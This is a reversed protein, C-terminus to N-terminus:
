VEAYLAFHDSTSRVYGYNAWSTLNTALGLNYVVGNPTPPWAFANTFSNGMPRVGASAGAPPVTGGANLPTGVVTNMITFNTGGGPAPRVLINDISFFNAVFDSGIYGYGPYPSQNGLNQSWLFRSAATKNKPKIHTAFYGRWLDLNAPPAGGPTLLLQYGTATLQAYQQADTGNPNLLNVNFDGCVVRVETGGNPTAVEWTNALYTIFVQPNGVLAPSHIAFLTLNRVAGTTGNRESFTVMYPERFVGYNIGGGAAGNNDIQFSTRAAVRDENVGVNYQAGAPIVRVASGPPVLMAQIDPNGGAAAPYAAAVGAAVSNGAYGGTWRNPGTFTRTIVHPGPITTVGRYFVGVSEAKGGTGIRLPPVLRWGMGPNAARLRALLDICGEMGGTMTALDNPSSDGSSVEVVVIIDPAAANLVRALVQRRQAAAQQFTLGGQGKRPRKNSPNAFKNIGFNEINWYLIRTM